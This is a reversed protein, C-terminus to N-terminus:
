NASFIANDETTFHDRQGLNQMWIITIMELAVGVAHEVVEAEYALSFFLYIQFHWFLFKLKVSGSQVKSLDLRM